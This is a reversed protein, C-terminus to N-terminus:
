YQSTSGTTSLRHHQNDTTQTDTTSIPHLTQPASHRHHQNPPSNTTSPPSHTHTYPSPSKADANAPPRLPDGHKLKKHAGWTYTLHRTSSTLHTPATCCVCVCAYVTCVCVYVCRRAVRGPTHWAAQSRRLAHPHQACRLSVQPPWTHAAM